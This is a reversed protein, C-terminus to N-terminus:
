ENISLFKEVDKIYKEIGEFSHNGGDEIIMKAGELKEVAMNYDLLEDGTQTLLFYLSPDIDKVEYEKLMELHDKSWKFSSEDYFSPAYGISKALTKTPNISPNILVSKIKYKNSLYISYYGGLSSGILGVKIGNKNFTMILEELTQIALNPIYSLSPAFFDNSSLQKRFMTAKMGLGSSGFGHIYIIM